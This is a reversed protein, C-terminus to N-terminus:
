KLFNAVNTGTMSTSLSNFRQHLGYKMSLPTM